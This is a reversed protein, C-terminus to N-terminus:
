LIKVRAFYKKGVRLLDGDEFLITGHVDREVRGGAEVAGQEILRKAESRSEAVGSLLVVEITPIEAEKIRLEPIDEPMEKKSFIKEFRERAKAAEKRGNYLAAIEEGLKVKADRPNGSLNDEIEKESLLTCLEFYKKMLGDPLSMVKGFMSDADENLGIYNGFSKSMKREGDLGELLPMTMIDQEEQGFHRQVKRGALLNFLQDSGGLEVDARVMVSDYGQFLPYLLEVVTVDGGADIRKKFDARHLMQQFTGAAAIEFVTRAAAKRFWDGNYRIEAKRIDLIKGAQKLYAKMNASIEKESLPKRTESRGSPDGIQATFDGIILVVKHGLDQFERLKRLPITHGLHLDPSTPDVGLKVRLEKGSLLEGRLHEPDIIKEVGRSLLADILKPDTLIKGM